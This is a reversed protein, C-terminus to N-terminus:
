KLCKKNKRNEITKQINKEKACEKCYKNKNNIQKIPKNCNECQIVGEVKNYYDFYYGINEFDKIEILVKDGCKINELYKLLIAGRCLIEILKIKSLENIVEDNISLKSSINAIKKINNYKKKGGRFYISNYEKNNKYEYVAKNLKLQVMFTFMVKKYDYKIDLDNIYQIENEYIDIKDINVLKQKKNLANTLTKNITKFFKEKKFNSIYKNCFEYIYKEREQPKLKVIDRCYLVLLRLETPIHKTQFGKRFILEAYQIENYKYSIM